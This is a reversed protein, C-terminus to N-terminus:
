YVKIIVPQFEEEFVDTDSVLSYVKSARLEHELYPHKNERIKTILPISLEKKISGLYGQGLLNMGLIRIYPIEFGKMLDDKTNCLMHMLTRKIKSNTYRRSIVQIILSDVSDFDKCKLMRNELGETIGFIQKLDDKTASNILYQLQDKFMNIDIIQRDKLLSAVTKPVYSDINKGEIMMKRIATASQITTNELHESYYGASHRKITNMKITSKLKRVAKIYQIGLINNPSDYITTGTIERVAKDSSTPFSYGNKLHVKVINNYQESDLINCIDELESIKGSESGFYIEDVGLHNLISVSTFAFMNASQVSFVFPLEVVMDVKNELAMRTRTFKDIMAPEGRQTFNGSMVCILVDCKSLRRTEEIHYLHGNHLPNYETIIGVVKM